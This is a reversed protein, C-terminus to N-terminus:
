GVLGLARWGHVDDILGVEAANLLEERDFPRAQVVGKELLRERFAGPSNGSELPPTLWQGDILAVVSGGIAGAVEDRENCYVVTDVDPHQRLLADALRMHTTNHFLYVNETSVREEADLNHHPYFM